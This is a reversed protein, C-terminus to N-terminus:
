FAFRVPRSRGRGGVNANANARAIAAARARSGCYAGNGWDGGALLVYCGGYYDGKGGSQTTWGSGGAAGTTALFQWLSGCGEEVGYISLMRRNATSQRGGAGGSTAGAENANKVATKENSGLMAAAFEEDNLLAKKVCFQDEVFDVYQRSRTIAGQYASKTNAGSGSQLYIDCWFDLLDIYVMGEPESHPRHNLCWVSAPLIDGAIYDNLPHDLTDGGFVYTMGTGADVCLTHFGGIRKVDSAAYGDPATKELSVKVSFAGDAEKCVFVYYDKGNMLATGTDLISEVDLETDASATYAGNGIEIKTGAKLVLARKGSAALFQASAASGTGSGSGGISNKAAQSISMAGTVPDVEIEASARVIGAMETTAIAVTSQGADSWWFVPPETNPTNALVFVHGNYLNTVRTGHLIQAADAVDIGINGCAYATLANQTPEAVGFDHADLYGGAGQSSAVEGALTEVDSKVNEVEVALAEGAQKVAKTRRTLQGLPVNFVDALCDDSVELRRVGAEWVPEDNLYAM